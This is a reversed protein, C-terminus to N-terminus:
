GRLQRALFFHLMEEEEERETKKMAVFLSSLSLSQPRVQFIREKKEWVM